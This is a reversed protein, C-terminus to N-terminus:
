TEPLEGAAQELPDDDVLSWIVKVSMLYNWGMALVVGVLDAPIYPIKAWHMSASFALWSIVAGILSVANYGLFKGCLNPWRAAVVQLRFTFLHNLLFNSAISGELALPYAAAPALRCGHVLSVLIVLNVVTGSAGVAAFRLARQLRATPNLQYTALLFEVIDRWGLKSQGSARPRFTTPLERVLYGRSLFQYLLCVQFVYGDATLTELPITALASARLAKFGATLDKVPTRADLLTSAIRNAALSQWHRRLSYGSAVRGGNVYRSGIVLDGGAELGELLRPIDAPNHSLDADMTVFADYRQKGLGWRMGRVYARGLGAKTGSIMFIGAQKRGLSRIVSATGDPSNDDIFLLDPSPRDAAGFAHRIAGVLPAINDAENYTPILILTRLM